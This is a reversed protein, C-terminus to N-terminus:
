QIGVKDKEEPKDKKVVTEAVEPKIVEKQVVVEKPIMVKFEALIERKLAEKLEERDKSPIDKKVKTVEIKPGPVGSEEDSIGKQEAQWFRYYRKITERYAGFSPVEKLSMGMDFLKFFDAKRNIKM